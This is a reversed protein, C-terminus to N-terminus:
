MREVWAAPRAPAKIAAIRPTSYSPSGSTSGMSGASSSPSSSQAFAAGGLGLALVSTAVLLRKVSM